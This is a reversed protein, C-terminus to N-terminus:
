KTRGYDDEIRVIDNEECNGTQVEYFLVGSESAKLRHYRGKPILFSENFNVPFTSTGITIIGNGDVIIWHEDRNNHYQLSFQENPNIWIKKLKYNKSEEITEFWGWPREERNSM